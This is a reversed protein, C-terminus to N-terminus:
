KNTLKEAFQETFQRIGQREWERWDDAAFRKMVTKYSKMGREFMFQGFRKRYAVDGLFRWFDGPVTIDFEREEFSQGEMPRPPIRYFHRYQAVNDDGPVAAEGVCRVEVFLKEETKLWNIYAVKLALIGDIEWQAFGDRFFRTYAFMESAGCDQMEAYLSKKEDATLDSPALIGQPVLIKDFIGKTM